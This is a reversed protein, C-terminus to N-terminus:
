VDEPEGTSQQWEAAPQQNCIKGHGTNQDPPSPTATARKHWFTLVLSLWVIFLELNHM